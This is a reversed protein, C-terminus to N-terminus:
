QAMGTQFVPRYVAAAQESESQGLQIMRTHLLFPDRRDKWSEVLAERTEKVKDSHVEKGNWEVFIKNKEKLLKNCVFITLSKVNDSEINIKNGKEVKASIRAPQKDADFSDIRVWHQRGHDTTLAHHEIEAPELVRRKKTLWQHIDPLITGGGRLDLQHGIGDLEKYVHDFDRELLVEEIMESFVVPVLNDTNGHVFYSPLWRLNGLLLKYREDLDDTEYDRMCLGGALPALACFRDSFRSGLNWTGFGGMSMGSLVVRNRDIPYKWCLDDILGNVFGDSRYSWWHRTPTGLIQEPLDENWKGKAPRQADPAVIIYGNKNAFNQYSRTVSSRGNGGYGHLMVILGYSRHRGAPGYISVRTDRGDEASFEIQTTQGPKLRGKPVTRGLTKIIKSPSAKSLAELDGEDLATLLDATSTNSEATAPNAYIGQETVGGIFLFCLSIFLAGMAARTMPSTTSRYTKM